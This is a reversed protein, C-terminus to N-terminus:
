PHSARATAHHESRPEQQDIRDLQWEATLDTQTASLHIRGNEEVSEVYPHQALAIAQRETMTAHFGVFAHRYRSRVLAGHGRALEDVVDNFRASLESRVTVIYENPVREGVRKFRSDSASIPIALMLFIAVAQLRM